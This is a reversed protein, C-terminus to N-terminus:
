MNIKLRELMAYIDVIDDASKLYSSKYYGLCRTDLKETHGSQELFRLLAEAVPDQGMAVLHAQVNKYFFTPDDSGNEPFFLQAMRKDRNILEWRRSRYALGLWNIEHERCKRANLLFSSHNYVWKALKKPNLHEVITDDGYCLFDRSTGVCYYMMAVNTLTGLIHTLASGSKIGGKLFVCKGNPAMVRCKKHINIISTWVEDEEPSNCFLGRIIQMIDEIMWDPPSHDFGSWDLSTARDGFMSLIQDGDGRFWDFGCAYRKPYTQRKLAYFLPDAWKKEIVTLAAPAVLIVRAKKEGPKVLHSRYGVSFPALHLKGEALKSYLSTVQEFPVNAKSSYEKRLTIPDLGPSKELTTFTNIAEKLTITDLQFEKMENRLLECASRWRDFDWDVREAVHQRALHTRYWSLFTEKNPRSRTWGQNLARKYYPYLPGLDLKTCPM